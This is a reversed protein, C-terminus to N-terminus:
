IDIFLKKDILDVLTKNKRAYNKTKKKKNKKIKKM